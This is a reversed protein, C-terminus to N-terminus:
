FGMSIGCGCASIVNPNHVEFGTEVLTEKWDIISGHLFGMSHTDVVIVQDIVHDDPNAIDAIDWLYQFGNCGGGSLSLRLFDNGLRETIKNKALETITIM